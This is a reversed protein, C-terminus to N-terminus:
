MFLFIQIIPIIKVKIIEEVVFDSLRIDTMLLQGIGLYSQLLLTQM